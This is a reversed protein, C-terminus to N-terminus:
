TKCRRNETEIDDVIRKICDTVTQLNMERKLLLDLVETLVRAGASETFTATNVKLPVAVTFIIFLIERDVARNM